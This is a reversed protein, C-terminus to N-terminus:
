RCPQFVIDVKCVIWGCKVYEEWTMSSGELFKAIAGKRQFHITETQVGGKVNGVIWKGKLTPLGASLVPKTGNATENKLEDNTSM